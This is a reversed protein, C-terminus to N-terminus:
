HVIDSLSEGVQHLSQEIQSTTWKKKLDQYSLYSSDWGEIQCLSCAACGISLLAIKISRLSYMCSVILSLSGSSQKWPLIYTVSPSKAVPNQLIMLDVARTALANISLLGHWCCELRLLLSGSWHLISARMMFALMICSCGERQPLLIRTGRPLKGGSSLLNIAVCGARGLGATPKVRLLASRTFAAASLHQDYKAVQQAKSCLLQCCFRGRM